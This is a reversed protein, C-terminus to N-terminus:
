HAKVETWARDLKRKFSPSPDELIELGTSDPLEPFIIHNYRITSDLLEVAEPIPMAYMIKAINRAANEPKLLFNLFKEANAKHPANAPICWNDVWFLMGEKPFACRFKSNAAVLRAISGNWDQAIWAEGSLMLEEIANSEYKKLLPKQEILLNRALNLHITDIGFRYGLLKYAIYFTENMEDVMLIHGKFRPDWMAKWSTLSDGTKERNYVFSTFGYTYPVYYLGTTDYPLKKFRQAIYQYNSVSSYDIPALLNADNMVKVMSGTPVMLDYGAVGMRIRTLLEENDNYYDLSVKIGTEAEFQKVLDENLYGSYNYINLKKEDNALFPSVLLFGIVLLILGLLSMKVGKGIRKSEQIKNSLFLVVVTFVILITSIANISPSVGFKILSYIKLPLTSSGVGATFFTVVFDDISLTFGFLAGSVIGPSINPLIVQVFTTWRGAGLDLSAEELSPPLNIVKALVIMTVFPFSFTIHACIISLLGLPFRIMLFMSLLMVGFIIEPLLVPVYLLNQFLAKGRFSYKALLIAGMTGLITTVFTSVVAIVLSNKVSLWLNNDSLAVRYWKLSFGTWQTVTRSENFSFIVLVVLPLLLFIIGLLTIIKLGRNQGIGLDNGRAINGAM